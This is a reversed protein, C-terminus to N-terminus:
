AAGHVGVVQGLKADQVVVVGIDRIDIGDCRLAMVLVAILDGDRGGGHAVDILLFHLVEEMLMQVLVFLNPVDEITSAVKIHPAFAIIPHPDLQLLVIQHDHRRSDIM